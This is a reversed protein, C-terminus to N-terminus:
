DKSYYKDRNSQVVHYQRICVSGGIWPLLCDIIGCSLAFIRWSYHSFQDTMCCRLDATVFHSDIGVQSIGLLKFVLSLLIKRRM